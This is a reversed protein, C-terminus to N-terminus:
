DPLSPQPPPAPLADYPIPRLVRRAQDIMTAIPLELAQSVHASGGARSCSRRQLRAPLSSAARNGRFCNGARATASLALGAVGSSWVVNGRISNGEPRWPPGVSPPPPISHDTRFVAIGYRLSAGVTNRLIRNRNGGAVGIGIGYFGALPTNLPVRARGSAIM